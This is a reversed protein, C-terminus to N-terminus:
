CPCGHFQMGLRDIEEGNARTLLRSMGLWDNGVLEPTGFPGTPWDDVAPADIDADPPPENDGSPLKGHDFSCGACVVFAIAHRM